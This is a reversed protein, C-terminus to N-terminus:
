FDSLFSDHPNEDGVIVADIRGAQAHEGPRHQGVAVDHHRCGVLLVGPALAAIPDNFM